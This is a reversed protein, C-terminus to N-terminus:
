SRSVPSPETILPSIVAVVQNGGTLVKKLFAWNIKLQRYEEEDVELINSSASTLLCSILRMIAQPPVPGPIIDVRAPFVPLPRGVVPVQSGLM